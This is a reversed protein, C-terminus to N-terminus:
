SRNLQNVINFFRTKSICREAYVKGDYVVGFTGSIFPAKQADSSSTIYNTSLKIKEKKCAETIESVPKALSPCQDSYFLHLGKYKKLSSDIDALKPLDSKPNLKLALLQHKNYETVTQFKMKEFIRKDAMFSGKSSIIAIGDKKLKKADKICERILKSGIQQGQYKKPYTFICHIFLYNKGKVARWANEIPIYEIFGITQDNDTVARKIILGKKLQSKIWNCKNIYGPMKQNKILCHDYTTLNKETITIIKM